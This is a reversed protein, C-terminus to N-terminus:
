PLASAQYQAVNWGDDPGDTGRTIAVGIALEVDARDPFSFTAALYGLVVDTAPSRSELVRYGVTMGVPQAAYYDAVTQRGVGYPRLGQFVADQTFVAAVRGPDHSDIGAKWEDMVVRVIQEAAMETGDMETGAM